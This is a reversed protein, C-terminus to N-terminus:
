PKPPSGAASRLAALVEDGLDPRCVVLDPLWTSDPDHVIPSGDLRSTHLGCARAVAIPAASDWVYQGGSHVYVDADGRAVAAVKAGASGMPIVDGDLRAAVAHAEPVTRTRSTVVRIRGSRKPSRTPADGSCLTIGLAPLAVIGTRISLGEVLAVHVAWDSRGPEGFERTGDLPDVIWVRGGNRPGVVDTSEESLIADAPFLERLLNIILESSRRDGERRVEDPAVGQGLLERIELLLEGAAVAVERGAAADEPATVRSRM